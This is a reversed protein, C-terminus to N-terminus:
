KITNKKMQGYLLLNFQLNNSLVVRFRYGKKRFTIIQMIWSRIGTMSKWIMIERERASHLAATM